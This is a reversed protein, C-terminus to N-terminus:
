HVTDRPNHTKEKCVFSLRAAADLFFAACLSIVCLHLKAVAM